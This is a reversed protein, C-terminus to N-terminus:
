AGNVVNVDFDHDDLVGRHDCRAFLRMILALMGDDDVEVGDKCECDYDDYNHHDDASCLRMLMVMMIIIIM